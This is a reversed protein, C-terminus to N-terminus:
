IKEVWAHALIAYSKSSSVEKCVVRTRRLTGRLYTKQQLRFLQGEPIDRLLVLPRDTLQEKPSCDALRLAQILAPNAYSSAAPKQMYQQLPELIYGPFVTENLLPQMLRQFSMQWARGHPSPLRQQKLKVAKFVDAHAIEHIFTILFAYKNLDANVTIHTHGTTLVRFDGLKTKRANVISLRFSYYKWLQLCYPMAETPLYAALGEESM